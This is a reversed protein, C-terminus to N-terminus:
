TKPSKQPKARAPRAFLPSLTVIHRHSSRYTRNRQRTPSILYLRKLNVPYHKKRHTMAPNYVDVCSSLCTGVVKKLGPPGVLVPIAGRPHPVPSVFSSPWGARASGARASPKPGEHGTAPLAVRSRGNNRSKHLCRPRRKPPRFRVGRRKTRM